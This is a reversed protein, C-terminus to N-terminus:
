DCNFVPRKKENDYKWHMKSMNILHYSGMKLDQLYELTSTSVIEGGRNIKELKEQLIKGSPIVETVKISNNIDNILHTKGNSGEGYLIIPKDAQLIFHLVANKADPYTIFPEDLNGAYAM